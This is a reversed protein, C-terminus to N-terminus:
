LILGGEPQDAFGAWSTMGLKGNLSGIAALRSAGFVWCSGPRDRMIEYRICGAGRQLESLSIRKGADAASSRFLIRSNFAIFRWGHVPLPLLQVRRGARAPLESVSEARQPRRDPHWNKPAPWADFPSRYGPSRSVHQLHNM